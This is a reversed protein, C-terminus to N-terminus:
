GFNYLLISFCQTTQCLAGEEPAVELLINCWRVMEFQNRSVHCHTWQLGTAESVLNWVLLSGKAQQPIPSKCWLQAASLDTAVAHHWRTLRSWIRQPINGFRHQYYVMLSYPLESPWLPDLRLIETYVFAKLLQLHCSKSDQQMEDYMRFTSLCRKFAHSNFSFNNWLIYAM